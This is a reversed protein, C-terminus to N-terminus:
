RSLKASPLHTITERLAAIFVRVKAPTLRPEYPHVAYVGGQPLSYDPLVHVLKKAALDDAALYDPMEAIGAGELVLARIATPSNAALRSRMEVRHRRKDKGLFSRGLPSPLLSFAIWEHAPLDEPTAPRGRRALYEPSAVLLLRFSALRVARLGSDRLAGVRLAVDFRNAVVDLVANSAVLDVKLEPHTVMLRAIVRAVLTNGFDETATVRLTGSPIDRGRGLRTVAEEAQHMIAACTKHFTRGAETLALKRTTRVLLQSGLEAELRAIHQSVVVKGLGLSEAAATFSGREVVAAFVAFRNLNVGQLGTTIGGM